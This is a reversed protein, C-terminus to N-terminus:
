GWNKVRLTIRGYGLAAATAARAIATDFKREHIQAMAPNGFDGPLMQLSAIAGWAIVSAYHGFLDDPFEQSLVSPKLAVTTTLVEGARPAPYVSLMVRDVTWAVRDKWYGRASASGSKWTKIDYDWKQTGLEGRVGMLSAMEVEQDLSLQFQTTLTDGVVPDLEDQWCLSRQCFDICAQRVHHELVSDPAQMAHPKVYKFFEEYQM